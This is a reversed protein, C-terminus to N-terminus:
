RCRGMTSGSGIKAPWALSGNNTVSDNVAPCCYRTYTDAVFSPASLPKLAGTVAVVCTSIAAYPFNVVTLSNFPQFTFPSYPARICGKVREGKLEEDMESLGRHAQLTRRRQPHAVLRNAFLPKFMPPIGKWPPRAM